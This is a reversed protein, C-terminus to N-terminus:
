IQVKGKDFQIEIGKQSSEYIATLIKMMEVGDDVSSLPVAEGLIFCDIENQFGSAFDFGASDVQPTINLITNYKETIIKFEPDIEAGGKDGYLKIISEDKQAHLTYCVDM